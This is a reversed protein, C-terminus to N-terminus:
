ETLVSWDHLHQVNHSESYKLLVHHILRTAHPRLFSNHMCVSVFSLHAVGLTELSHQTEEIWNCFFTM